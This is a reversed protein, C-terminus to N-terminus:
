EAVLRLRHLQTQTGVDQLVRHAHTNGARSHYAKGDGHREAGEHAAGLVLQFHQLVAVTGGDGSPPLKDVFTANGYVQLLVVGVLEVDADEAPAVVVLALGDDLTMVGREDIEAAVGVHTEVLTSLVYCRFIVLAAHAEGHALDVVESDGAVEVGDAEDELRLTEVLTGGGVPQALVVPSLMTDFIRATVLQAQSARM